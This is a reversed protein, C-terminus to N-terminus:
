DIRVGAKRVVPGWADLDAKLQAAYEDPKNGVPDIGLVAFRERVEPLQLVAAIETQLREVVARPTKAPALIGMWSNVVFGPLGSEIFTPVEPLAADRRESSIGLGKLRGARLFQQATAIATCVLPLQGGVADAIAQSGGKYPIHVLEIGARQNLMECALHTTSGTGASGYNLLGPKSRALAILERLNNAPLSPHAVVIIAADGLKTVPTFDKLTDFGLKSYVHPNVVMTGDYAAVLTYGDPASKAVLETGINGSAGPRNEVVVPQGLRAALRDAVARASSDAFGGPSFPVVIRIPKAPWTQAHAAPLLAFALVLTLSYMLTSRM